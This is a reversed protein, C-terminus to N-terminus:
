VGGTAPDYDYNGYNIDSNLLPAVDKLEQPYAGHAARYAQISSKLAVLDAQQAADQAEKPMNLLTGSYDETKKKDCASFLLGVLCFLLLLKLATKLM